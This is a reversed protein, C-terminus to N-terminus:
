PGSCVPCVSPNPPWRSLAVGLGVPLIFAMIRGGRNHNTSAVALPLYRRALSQSNM